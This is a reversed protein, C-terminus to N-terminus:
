HQKIENLVRQSLIRSCDKCKKAKPNNVLTHRLLHGHDINCYSLYGQNPTLQVWLHQKTNRLEQSLGWIPSIM